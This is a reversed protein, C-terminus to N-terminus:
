RRPRHNPAQLIERGPAIMSIDGGVTRLRGSSRGIIVPRGIREILYGFSEEFAAKKELIILLSQSRCVSMRRVEAEKEDPPGYCSLVDLVKDSLNRLEDVKQKKIADAWQKTTGNPFAKNLIKIALNIQKRQDDIKEEPTLELGIFQVLSIRGGNLKRGAIQDEWLKINDKWGKLVTADSPSVTRMREIVVEAASKMVSIQDPRYNM